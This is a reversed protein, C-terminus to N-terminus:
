HNISDLLFRISRAREIELLKRSSEYDIVEEISASRDNLRQELRLTTLFDVMRSGSKKTTFTTFYKEFVVSFVTAHFSNTVVFKANKIAFLFESPGYEFININEFPLKIQKKSFYVVPLEYKKVLDSVYHIMEPNSELAYLFIYQDPIDFKNIILEYDTSEILLTPDLVSLVSKETLEQVASISSPERVSIIDISKLCDKFDAKFKDDITGHGISPAYSITRKGSGGAFALFYASEPGKTCAPNWIQDSGCVFADYDEVISKMQNVEYFRRNTKKLHDNSFKEYCKKRNFKPKFELLDRLFVWPKTFYYHTRFLNYNRMDYSYVFDIIENEIGNKLQIQQLAYAQLASGYNYSCHFTVTATKKV